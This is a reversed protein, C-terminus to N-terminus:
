VELEALAVAYESNVYAEASQLDMNYVYNRTDNIQQKVYNWGNAMSIPYNFMMNVDVSGSLVVNTVPYYTLLNQLASIEAASLEIEQPEAIPYLVYVDNTDVFNQMDALTTFKDNEAVSNRLIIRANNNIFCRFNNLYDSNARDSFKVGEFVNSIPRLSSQEDVTVSKIDTYFYNGFTIHEAFSTINSSELHIKKCRKIIKGTGDANCILEDCIWQRGNSDTYNGGSDVPIGCLPLASTITATTSISDGNDVTITVSGSDGVSVIDVPADPTPTGDQVSKGYIHVDTIKGNDSDNLTKKGVNSVYFKTIKTNVVDSLDSIQGRVADGASNYTKGDAGVRIDILEADATTSGEELKAFNNVKTTLTSINSENKNSKVVACKFSRYDDVTIGGVALTGNQIPIDAIPIKEVTGSLTKVSELKGKLEQM